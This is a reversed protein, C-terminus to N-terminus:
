IIYEVKEIRYRVKEQATPLEVSDGEEHSILARAFPTTVALKHSSIDSEPEGVIQYTSEEGTETNTITVTTGFVVKGNRPLKSVDIVQANSLQSEIARIKAEVMGQKDKNAHYDANESLDGLKRARGIAASIEGRSSKLEDLEKRLRQVGQATIPIRM